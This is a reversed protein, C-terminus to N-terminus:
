KLPDYEGDLIAVDQIYQPMRVFAPGERSIPIL